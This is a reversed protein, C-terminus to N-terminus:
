AEAEAMNKYPDKLTGRKELATNKQQALIIARGTFPM